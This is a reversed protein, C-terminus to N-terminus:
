VLVFPILGFALVLPLLLLVVLGVYRGFVLQLDQDWPNPVGHGANGVSTLATSASKTPTSSHLASRSASPISTSPAFSSTQMSSSAAASPFEKGPNKPQEDFEVKALQIDYMGNDFGGTLQSSWSLLLHKGDGGASKEAVVSSGYWPNVTKTGFTSKPFASSAYYQRNFYEPHPMGAYNFGGKGPKSKYLEQEPSWAYKVLAEVDDATIGKGHKGREAWVQDDEFPDNLDLFRIYFVSNAFRNLYVMIFTNFYPSFFVSGSSFSGPLYIKRYNNESPKPPTGTFKLQRQDWFAYNSFDSLQNQRVRAMQLGGDTMGLLYVDRVGPDQPKTATTHGILASFGGYPVQSGSVVLNKQRTAVPASGATLTILTMGRAQYKKSPDRPKSDVYVLPAMLFAHTTNYPTPSTGPWIAVREVGKRQGNFELEDSSFGIWGGTGVTTDALIAYNTDGSKKDKGVAEVGFDQLLSIDKNADAAYAATNSVFSLQKGDLLVSYGGDRSVHTIDPTTQSGLEEVRKVVIPTWASVCTTFIGCLVLLRKGTWSSVVQVTLM